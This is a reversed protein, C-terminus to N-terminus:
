FWGFRIPSRYVRWAFLAAFVALLAVIWPSWESVVTVGTIVATLVLFLCTASLRKRQGRWAALAPKNEPAVEEGPKVKALIREIRPQIYFHVYTLLGVILTFVVMKAILAWNTWIPDPSWSPRFVTLLIGTVLIGALYGYCRVPQNKVINELYRDVNYGPPIAFRARENAMILMYLPASMFLMSVLHLLSVIERVESSM